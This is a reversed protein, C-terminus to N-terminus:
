QRAALSIAPAQSRFSGLRVASGQDLKQEARMLHAAVFELAAAEDFFPGYRALAASLRRELHQAQHEGALLLRRVALRANSLQAAHVVEIVQLTARHRSHASSSAPTKLASFDNCILTSIKEVGRSYLDSMVAPPAVGLSESGSWAGLVESGDGARCAIAWYIHPSGDLPQGQVRALLSRIFVGGYRCCLPRQLWAAFKANRDLKSMAEEENAVLPEAETRVDRAEDKQALTSDKERHASIAGAWLGSKVATEVGIHQDAEALYPEGRCVGFPAIDRNTPERNTSPVM